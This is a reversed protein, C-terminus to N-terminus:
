LMPYWSPSTATQITNKSETGAQGQSRQDHLKGCETYCEANKRSSELQLDAEPHCPCSEFSIVNFFKFFCGKERGYKPEGSCKCLAEQEVEGTSNIDAIHGIKKCQFAGM